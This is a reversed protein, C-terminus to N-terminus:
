NFHDINILIQYDLYMCVCKESIKTDSWQNDVAHPFWNEGEQTHGATVLATDADKTTDQTRM